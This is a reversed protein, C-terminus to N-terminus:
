ACEWHPNYATLTIPRCSYTRGYQGHPARGDTWFSLRVNRPEVVFHPYARDFHRWADADSPNFVSGEKTLNNAHWTMQEDIAESAYLRQLHPTIPLYRLSTYATKKRNPNRTRTLKYRAEGCFICYDFIVKINVLEAVIKWQSQTCCNGLPQEAAHGVDHFQNALGFVYDYWRGYYSSPGVNTPYSRTANDPVSDRNYKSSWVALRAVDFVM